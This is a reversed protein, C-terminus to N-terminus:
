VTVEDSKKESWYDIKIKGIVTRYLSEPRRKAIMDEANPDLQRNMLSIAAWREDKDEIFSVKGSFMVSAYNHSCEIEVYGHDLLAQGWVVPTARMFDLKKGKKASHFYICHNEEDYGHSLSVLYPQDDRAMAITVYQTTKLIRKMVAEDTIEKDKRRVHYRM